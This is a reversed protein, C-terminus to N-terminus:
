NKGRWNELREAIALLKWDQGPAAVLQMGIPAGDQAAGWPISIAPCDTLNFPLTLQALAAHLPFQVGDIDVKKTDLAPAPTRMTPCLLVDYDNFLAHVGQVFDRRLHQAKLYWTAPLFCGLEIRMRIDDDVLHGRTQLREAHSAAGEANVTLMYVMSMFDDGPLRQEVVSTGEENLAAAAQHLAARVESHLPKAFYGGLQAVRLGQLSSIKWAPVEDLNLMAAFLSACADVSQGMPGIHDLSPALDLGGSRPVADYSPKLGVIGCCAAPLRVSGGTDTGVAVPVIGGAIAAASGGSSGGPLCHPAVPNVVRGFWPNDSTAGFALEHLNAMGLMVAGRARLRRIVEADETAPTTDSSASGGTLPMGKVSIFDKIAVPVNQLWGPQDSVTIHEPLYSFWSTDKNNAHARQLAEEPDNRLAPSAASIIGAYSPAAVSTPLPYYPQKSSAQIAEFLSLDHKIFNLRQAWKPAATVDSLGLWHAFGSVHDPEISSRDQASM